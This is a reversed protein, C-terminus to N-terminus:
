NEIDFEARTSQHGPGLPINYRCNAEIKVRQGRIDAPKGQAPFEQQWGDGAPVEGYVLTPVKDSGPGRVKWLDNGQADQVVLVSLGTVDKGYRFRFEVKGNVTKPSCACETETALAQGIQQAASWIVYGAGVCALLFFIGIWIWPRSFMSSEM